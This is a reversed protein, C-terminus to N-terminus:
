SNHKINLFHFKIKILIHLMGKFKFNIDELVDKCYIKYGKTALYVYLINSNIFYHSNKGHYGYSVYLISLSTSYKNHMGKIDNFNVTQYPELKINKISWDEIRISSLDINNHKSKNVAIDITLHFYTQMVM